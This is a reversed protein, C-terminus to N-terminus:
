RTGTITSNPTPLDSLSDIRLKKKLNDPHAVWRVHLGSGFANPWTLASDDAVATVSQPLSILQTDGEDTEYGLGLPTFSVGEAVDKQMQVLAGPANFDARARARFDADVMQWAWPGGGTAQWADNVEQDANPGYHLRELSAVLRREGPRAGELILHRHGRALVRRGPHRARVHAARNAM